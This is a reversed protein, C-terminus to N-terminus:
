ERTLGTVPALRPTPKFEIVDLREGAAALRRHCANAEATAGVVLKLRLAHEPGVEHVLLALRRLAGRGVPARRREGLGLFSGAGRRFGLLVSRRGFRGFRGFSAGLRVFDDGPKATEAEAGLLSAGRRRQAL